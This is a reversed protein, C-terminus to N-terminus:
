KLIRELHQSHWHLLGTPIRWDTGYQCYDVQSFRAGSKSIFRILNHMLWMRSSLQNEMVFPINLSVALEM